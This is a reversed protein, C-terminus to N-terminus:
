LKRRKLELNVQRLTEKYVTTDMKMSNQIISSRVRFLKSTKAKKIICANGKNNTYRGQSLNEWMKCYEPFTLGLSRRETAAQPM